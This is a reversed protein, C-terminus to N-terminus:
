KDTEQRFRTIMNYLIVASVGSRPTRKAYVTIVTTEKQHSGIPRFKQDIQELSWGFHPDGEIRVLEDLCWNVQRLQYHTLKQKKKTVGHHENLKKIQDMM